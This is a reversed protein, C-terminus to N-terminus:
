NWTPRRWIVTVKKPHPGPLTHWDLVAGIDRACTKIDDLGFHEPRLEEHKFGCGDDEVCIIAEDQSLHLHVLIYSAQAHIVSNTLALDVIRYLGQHIEPPYHATGVSMCQIQTETSLQKIQVLETILRDLSVENIRTPRLELLIHRIAIHATSTLQHLNNLSGSIERPCTNAKALMAKTILTTAFLMQTVSEHIEAAILYRQRQTTLQAQDALYHGMRTAHQSLYFGALAMSVVSGALLSVALCRLILTTSLIATLTLPVLGVLPLLYLLYFYKPQLFTTRQEM